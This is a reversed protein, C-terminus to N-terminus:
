PQCQNKFIILGVQDKTRIELIITAGLFNIYGQIKLM